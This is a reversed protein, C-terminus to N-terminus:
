PGEGCLFRLDLVVEALALRAFRLDARLKVRHLELGPEPARRRAAALAEEPEQLGYVDHAFWLLRLEAAALDAEAGDLAHGLRVVEQELRELELRLEEAPDSAAAALLAHPDVARPWSLTLAQEAGNPSVGASLQGAVPAAAPLPLRAELRLSGALAGDAGPSRRYSGHAQLSVKLDPVSRMSAELLREQYRGMAVAAVPSAALCAAPDAGRSGVERALADFPPPSLAGEPYGLDRALSAGLEAGQTSVYRKLGELEHVLALLEREAPPHAMAESRTAPRRWGTVELEALAASAEAEIESFAALVLVARAFGARDQAAALAAEAEFAALRQAHLAHSPEQLSRYLPLTAGLDLQLALADFGSWTLRESFSLAPLAEQELQRGLAELQAAASRLPQSPVRHAAYAAVLEALSAPAAPPPAAAFTPAALPQALLWAAVCAVASTFRRRASGMAASM